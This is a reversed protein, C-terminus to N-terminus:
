IVYFVDQIHLYLRHSVFDTFHSLESIFYTLFNLTLLYIWLDDWHLSKPLPRTVTVALFLAYSTVPQSCSVYTLTSLNILDLLKHCHYIALLIINKSMIWQILNSTKVATVIFFATQKKRRQRVSRTRIKKNEGRCQLHLRYTGRFRRNVGSRCPAVDWFVEKKM